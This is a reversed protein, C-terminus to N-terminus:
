TSLHFRLGTIRDEVLSGPQQRWTKWAMVIDGICGGTHVAAPVVLWGAFPAMAISVTFVTTLLILPALAVGLFQPRTFLQGDSTVFFVPMIKGIMKAGYTPTGGTWAVALAHIGEHIVLTAVISAMTVVFAILFDSGTLVFAAGGQHRAGYILGFGLLMVISIMIAGINMFISTATGPVWERIEYGTQQAVQAPIDDM